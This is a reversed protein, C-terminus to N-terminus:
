SVRQPIPRAPRIQDFRASCRNKIGPYLNSKGASLLGLPRMVWAHHNRSRLCSALEAEVIM